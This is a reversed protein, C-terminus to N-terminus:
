AKGVRQIELGPPNNCPDFTVIYNDFFGSRGLMGAVALKKSFGAMVEIITGPLCLKVKHFWMKGTAGGIVGGLSQEIGATIDLGIDVGVDAHFLCWASGSDVVAEVRNSKVHRHMVNLNLLPMWTFTRGPFIPDPNALPFVKYAIRV